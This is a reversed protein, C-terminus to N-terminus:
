SLIAALLKGCVVIVEFPTEDGAVRATVFEQLDSAKTGNGGPIQYYYQM